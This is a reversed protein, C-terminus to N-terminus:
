ESDRTAQLYDRLAERTSSFALDDWPIQDDAFTAVEHTEHLAELQGGTIRGAFVVVVVPRGSYSYVGVLREMSAQLGVEERVERAAADEIREGRDVYGSPFGWSGM